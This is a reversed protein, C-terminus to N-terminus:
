SLSALHHWNKLNLVLMEIGIHTTYIKKNEKSRSSAQTIKKHKRRGVILGLNSIYVRRKRKKKKAIFVEHAISRKKLEKFCKECM